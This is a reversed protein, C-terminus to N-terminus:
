LDFGESNGALPVNTSGGVAVDPDPEDFPKDLGIAIWALLVAFCSLLIGAVLVGKPYKNELVFSIGCAGILVVSATNGFERIYTRTEEYVAIQLGAACGVAPYYTLLALRIGESTAHDTVVFKLIEIWIALGGFGVFGRFLFSWFTFSPLPRFVRRKLENWLPTFTDASQEM